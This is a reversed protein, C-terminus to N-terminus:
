HPQMMKAIEEDWDGDDGYDMYNSYHGYDGYGAYDGYGPPSTPMGTTTTDTTTTTTTTSTTTSTTTTTKTSTTSTCTTTDWTQVMGAMREVIPHNSQERAMEMALAQPSELADQMPHGLVLALQAALALLGVPILQM